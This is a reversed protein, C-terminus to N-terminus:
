GDSEKERQNKVGFHALLLKHGDRMGSAYIWDHMQQQHDNSHGALPLRKYLPVSPEPIARLLEQFEPDSQLRQLRVALQAPLSFMSM